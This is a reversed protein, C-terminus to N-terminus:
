GMPLSQKLLSSVFGTTSWYHIKQPAIYMLPIFSILKLMFYHCTGLSLLWVPELNLGSVGLALYSKYEINQKGVRMHTVVSM